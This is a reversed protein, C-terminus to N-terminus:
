IKITKHKLNYQHEIYGKTLGGIDYFILNKKDKDWGVNGAHFDPYIIKHLKLEKAIDIIKPIMEDIKDECDPYIPKIDFLISNKIDKIDLSESKFLEDDVISDVMTIIRFHSVIRRELPSLPIVQDMLLYYDFPLDFNHITDIVGVNYYNVIHKTRNKNRALLYGRRYESDDTTLKLVKGSKTSFATGYAGSGLEIDIQEGLENAIKSAIDFYSLESEFLKFKTIM